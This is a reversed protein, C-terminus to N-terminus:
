YVIQLLIHLVFAHIHPALVHQDRVSKRFTKIQHQGREATFGPCHNTLIRRMMRRNLVHLQVTKLYGTHWHLTVANM